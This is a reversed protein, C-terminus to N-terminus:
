YRQRASETAARFLRAQEITDNRKRHRQTVIELKSLRFEIKQSLGRGTLLFSTAGVANLTCGLASFKRAGRRRAFRGGYLVRRNAEFPLVPKKARHRPEVLAFPKAIVEIKEPAGAARRIQRNPQLVPLLFQM